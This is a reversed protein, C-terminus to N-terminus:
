GMLMPVLVLACACVGFLAANKYIVEKTLSGDYVQMMTDLFTIFFVLTLAAINLFGISLLSSAWLVQTTLLSLGVSFVRLRANWAEQMFRVYEKSLIYFVVFLVLPTLISAVPISYSAAYVCIAFLLLYFFISLARKAHVFQLSAVGVVLFFLASFFIIIAGAGIGWPVAMVGIIAAIILASYLAPVRMSGNMRTIYVYVAYAIILIVSWVSAGGRLIDLTAAFILTSLLLSLTPLKLSSIFKRVTM